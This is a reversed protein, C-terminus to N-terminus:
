TNSYCVVLHRENRAGTERTPDCLGIDGVEFIQLPLKQSKNNALTRIMFPVLSNRVVQTETTKPNAIIIVDEGLPRNLKESIDKKSCLAFNLCENYGAHSLEERILDTM